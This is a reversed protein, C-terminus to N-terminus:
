KTRPPLGYKPTRRALTASFEQWEGLCFAVGDITHAFPVHLMTAGNKPDLMYADRENPLTSGWNGGAGIITTSLVPRIGGGSIFDKLYKLEPLSRAQLGTFTKIKKERALAALDEAEQTGNGLPWECYVMKGAALATKVLHYHQPVKVAVLVLDVGPAHVLDFENAFAHPVNFKEAAAKASELSKTSVAVVEYQDKLKLLAPLHARAAGVVRVPVSSALM